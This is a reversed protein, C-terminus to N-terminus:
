ACPEAEKAKQQEPTFDGRLPMLHREAVQAWGAGGFEGEEPFNFCEGTCVWSHSASANLVSAKSSPSVYIEGPSVRQQLEVVCGIFEVRVQASVILALDGPKFNRNM